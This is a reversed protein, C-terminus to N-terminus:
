PPCTLVQWTGRSVGPSSGCHIRGRVYTLLKLYEQDLRFQDTM